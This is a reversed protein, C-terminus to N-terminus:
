SYTAQEVLSWDDTQAIPRMGQFLSPTNLRQQSAVKDETHTYTHTHTHTNTHSHTYTEWVCENGHGYSGFM